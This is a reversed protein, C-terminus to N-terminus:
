DGGKGQEEPSFYTQNLAYLSHDNSGIYVVGNVVAPTSVISGKTTFRWVTTGAQASVAYLTHDQSGIYVVGDIVLIPLACTQVGTM